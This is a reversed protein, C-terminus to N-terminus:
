EENKQNNLLTQYYFKMLNDIQDLLSSRDSDPLHDIKYVIERLRADKPNIDMLEAKAIIETGSMRRSM